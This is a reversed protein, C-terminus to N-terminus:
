NLMSEAFIFSSDSFKILFPFCFVAKRKISYYHCRHGIVEM